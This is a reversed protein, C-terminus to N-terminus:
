WWFNWVIQDVPRTWGGYATMTSTGTTHRFNPYSGGQLNFSDATPRNSAPGDLPNIVGVPAQISITTTHFYTRAISTLTSSAPNPTTCRLGAEPDITKVYRGGIYWGEGNISATVTSDSQTSTWGQGTTLVTMQTPSNAVNGQKTSSVLAWAGSIAAAGVVIKIVLKVILLFIANDVVSVSSSDVIKALGVRKPVIQEISKIKYRTLEEGSGSADLQLTMTGNHWQGSELQGALDGSLSWDSEIEYESSDVEANGWDAFAKFGIEVTMDDVSVSTPIEGDLMVGVVTTSASSSGCTATVVNNGVSITVDEVEVMDDYEEPYTVIDFDEKTLVDGVEINEASSDKLAISEVKVVTYSPLSDVTAESCGEIEINDLTFDGAVSTDIDVTSPYGHDSPTYNYGNCCDGTVTLTLSAPSDDIAFVIESTQDFSGSVNTGQCENGPENGPCNVNTTTNTTPGDCDDLPTGGGDAHVFNVPLILNAFMCLSALAVKWELLQKSGM